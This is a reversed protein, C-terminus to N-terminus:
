TPLYVLDISKLLRPPLKYTYTAKKGNKANEAWFLSYLLMRLVKSFIGFIWLEDCMLRNHPYVCWISPKLSDLLYAQHITQNQSNKTNEHLSTIVILWEPCKVSFIFCGFHM